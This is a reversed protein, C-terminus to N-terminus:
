ITKGPSSILHSIFGQCFDASYAPHLAGACRKGSPALQYIHEAGIRNALTDILSTLDAKAKTGDIDTQQLHLPETWPAALRIIEIGYGPDLTELKDCLLRTLRKADRRPQALNIRLVRTENDIRHCYLDLCRAGCCKEELLRCMSETLIGIYRTITEPAAIPEAFVRQVTILEQPVVPQIVEAACGMAQDLRLAVDKGFRMVISKRPKEKLEQVTEIGLKNLGASASPQLRLAAIPLRYIRQLYDSETAVLMSAKMTRTFAHAAGYTPALAAKAEFGQANLKSVLDALMQEANGFLHVCGTADIWLGDKDTAITPSYRRLAWLAITEMTQANAAVNYDQLYLDKVLVRAQTVAMGAAVGQRAAQRDTAMIVQKQGERGVLALPNDPSPANSGM